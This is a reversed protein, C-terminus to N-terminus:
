TLLSQAYRIWARVDFPSAAIAQGLYRRARVDGNRRLAEGIFYLGRARSSKTQRPSPGIRAAEALIDEESEGRSRARAAALSFEGLRQQPEHSRGSISEPTVRARYLVEPVMQFKGLAALRYWLDWDQGFHFAARYGGAREYADRRFIVSPHSTPGTIVGNPQELDLVRLARSAEAFGRAEYLPELEPGVFATQCSVFVIEEDADFLPKQLQLRAPHSLDGADQRAILPSRAAACGAILARTLGTNEQRIVRIRSDRAACAALISPTEDVSGDDVIVFEFDGFTQGLISDITEDLTSAANFVGMVVSITTM